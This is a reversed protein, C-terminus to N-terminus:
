SPSQNSQNAGNNHGCRNNTSKAYNKDIENAPLWMFWWKNNSHFKQIIEDFDLLVANFNDIRLFRHNLDDETFCHLYISSGQEPYRSFTNWDLSM